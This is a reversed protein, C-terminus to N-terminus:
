TEMIDVFVRIPAANIGEFDFRAKNILNNANIESAQSLFIGASLPAIAATGSHGSFIDITFVDERVGM